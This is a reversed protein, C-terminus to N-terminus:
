QSMPQTTLFDSIVSVTSAVFGCTILVLCLRFFNLGPVLLRPAVTTASLSVLNSEVTENPSHPPKAPCKMVFQMQLHNFTVTCAKHDTVARTAELHNNGFLINSSLNPVVLMTHLSAKGPSWQIPVDQLAIGSLVIDKDAVSVPIPQDLKVTSLHPCQEQIRKAYDLSCLSVSCCIDSSM